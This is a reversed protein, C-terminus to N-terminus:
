SFILHLFKGSEVDDLFKIAEDQAEESTYLWALGYKLVMKADYESSISDDESFRSRWRNLLEQGRHYIRIKNVASFSLIHQVAEEENAALHKKLYITASKAPNHLGDVNKGSVVIKWNAQTEWVRCDSLYPLGSDIIKGYDIQNAWSKDALFYGKFSV